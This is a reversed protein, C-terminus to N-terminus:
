KLLNSLIADLDPHSDRVLIEGTTGDILLVTPIFEVNYGAFDKRGSVMVNVWSMGNKAVFQKWADAKTDLSVSFIEVGKGHYKAYIDRLTPISQVCPGCWTAWFDLIVYRNAPNNVVSSLSVKKGAPNPCEIDIFHQHVLSGKPMAQVTDRRSEGANLTEQLAPKVGADAGKVARHGSMSGFGLSLLLTVCLLVKTKM